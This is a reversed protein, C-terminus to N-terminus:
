NIDPSVPLVTRLKSPCPKWTSTVSRKHTWTEWWYVICLTPFSCAADGFFESFKSNTLRVAWRITSWFRSQLQAESEQSCDSEGLILLQTATPDSQLDGGRSWFNSIPQLQLWRWIRSQLGMEGPVGPIKLSDFKLYYFKVKQHHTNQNSNNYGHIEDKNGTVIRLCM